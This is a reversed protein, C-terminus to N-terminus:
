RSWLELEDILALLQTAEDASLHTAVERLSEGPYMREIGAILSELEACRELRREDELLQERTRM